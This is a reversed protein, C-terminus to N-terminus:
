DITTILGRKSLAIQMPEIDKRIGKKVECKGKFHAIISCQEAQVLSHQCVEVLSEIVYNFSHVDDNYLTLFNYESSESNQKGWGFPKNKTRSAM